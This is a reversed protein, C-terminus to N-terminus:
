RTVEVAPVAPEASGAGAQEAPPKRRELAAATAAREFPVRDSLTDHVRALLEVLESTEAPTLGTM